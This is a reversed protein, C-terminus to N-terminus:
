IEKAVRSSGGMRHTGSRKLRNQAISRREKAIISALTKRARSHKGVIVLSSAMIRTRYDSGAKGDGAGDIAIGALSKISNPGTGRVTLRYTDHVNLRTAPALTVRKTMPNYVVSTIAVHGGGPGIITYNAVNQASAADLAGDFQIVLTTPMAHFGYRAVSVIRPGDIMDAAPAVAVTVASASSQNFNSDNVYVATFVDNGQPLSSTNFSASGDASVPVTAIITSGDMLAFHGSFLPLRGTGDSSLVPTNAPDVLVPAAINSYQPAVTFYFSFPQGATTSASSLELTTTTDSPIVTLDISSQSPSYTASGAYSAAITHRGPTLGITQIRAEGAVLPVFTAQRGDLTFTISGTVMGAAGTVNVTITDRSDVPVTTAAAVIELISSVPGSTANVSESKAVEINGAKDVSWFTVTRDEGGAINFPGSYTQPNGGDIEYLTQAIGSLNDIASLTVTHDGSTSGNSPAVSATTTPMTVDINIGSVTTSASNFANDIATGTASQNAGEGSLTVPGTVSAVGSGEDTATFTVTVPANYWGAANAPRDPAGTIVPPTTDPPSTLDNALITVTAMGGGVLPTGGILDSLALFFTRDGDLVANNFIPISITATQQSFEAPFTLTGSVAGYDVGAHATGDSTAYDVTVTGTFNNPALLRDLMVVISLTADNEAVAYSDSSIQLSGPTSTITVIGPTEAVTGATPNSLNVLFNVDGELQGDPLM